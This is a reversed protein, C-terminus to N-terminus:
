KVSTASFYGLATRADIRGWGFQEDWGVPGLDVATQQIAKRVNDPGTVGHSILLAALGSVHPAAMSTGQFFYYAFDVPSIAFTQQVIGDPYGDGNQDVLMDGGPAVVDLYSGTNSYYARQQDYRTAGVAICYRDYAAPYEPANGNQYDNGAACVITVGNRYASAVANQLTASTGAAGLSLNIVKAGNQVAFYIGQSITFYDGQGSADMVKVPMISCGFAIGAVGLANNTSQALTGTVHTGHGNDDNPHRDDNVFDYGAVFHTQALDPAQKYVGYNEYAAGTDVVAVVVNPDGTEISWAAEMDIGGTAANDLNWQYRFYPDDPVFFVRVHYNLEAYEVGPHGLFDAAMDEPMQSEPIQLLHCKAPECTRLRVCGHQEIMEDRANPEVGESFKVIIQDSRWKPLEPVAAGLGGYPALPRIAPAADACRTWTPVVFLTAMLCVFSGAKSVVCRVM